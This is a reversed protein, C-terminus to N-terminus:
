SDSVLVLSDLGPGAGAPHLLALDGPLGRIMSMTGPGTSCRHDQPL